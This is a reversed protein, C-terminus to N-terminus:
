YLIKCNTFKVTASNSQIEDKVKGNLLELIWKPDAGEKSFGTIFKDFLLDPQHQNSSKRQKPVQKSCGPHLWDMDSLISWEPLSVFSLNGASFVAVDGPGGFEPFPGLTKNRPLLWVDFWLM